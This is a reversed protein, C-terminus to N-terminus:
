AQYTRGNSHCACEYISSGYAKQQRGCGSANESLRPPTCTFGSPILMAFLDAVLDDLIDLFAQLLITDCDRPRLTQTALQERTNRCEEAFIAALVRTLKHPRM